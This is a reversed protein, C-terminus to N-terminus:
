PLPFGMGVMLAPQNIDNAQYSLIGVGAPELMLSLPFEMPYKLWRKTFARLLHGHAILIIDAPQEGNM